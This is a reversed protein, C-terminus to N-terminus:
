SIYYVYIYCTNQITLIVPNDIFQKEPLCHKKLHKNLNVSNETVFATEYKKEIITRNIKVTRILQRETHIKSFCIYSNDGEFNSEAKLYNYTQSIARLIYIFKIVSSRFFVNIYKVAQLQKYASNKKKEIKSSAVM